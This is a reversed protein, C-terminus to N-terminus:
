LLHNNPNPCVVYKLMLTPSSTTVLYCGGVQWHYRIKIPFPSQPTLIWRKNQQVTTSSYMQCIRAPPCRQVDGKDGWPASWSCPKKSIWSQGFAKVRCLIHQRRAATNLICNFLLGWADPSGHTEAWKCVQTCSSMAARSDFRWSTCPTPSFREDKPRSSVCRSQKQKQWFWFLGPPRWTLFKGVHFSIEPWRLHIIPSEPYLIM